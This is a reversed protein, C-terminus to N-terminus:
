NCIVFVDEGNGIRICHQTTGTESDHTWTGNDGDGTETTVAYVTCGALLTITIIISILNKGM